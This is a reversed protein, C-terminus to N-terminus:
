CTIDFKFLALVRGQQQLMQLLQLRQLSQLKEVTPQPVAAAQLLHLQEKTSLQSCCLRMM